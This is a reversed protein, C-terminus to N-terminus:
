PCVTRLRRKKPYYVGACHLFVDVPRTDAALRAAFADISAFSALDVLAYDVDALPYRKRLRECAAAARAENRCALTVAAGLSLFEGAAAFGIGSNGGTIVVREGTMPRAHKELWKRYKEAM